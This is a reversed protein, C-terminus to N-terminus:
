VANITTQDWFVDKYVSYKYDQLRLIKESDVIIKNTGTYSKYITSPDVGYYSTSSRILVGRWLIPNQRTWTWYDWELDLPPIRKVNFWPRTVVQQVEQLNTSKYYSITNFTIPGNVRISGVIGNFDLLSPFAIGLFGWEKITLVPEKVLKGNWYFSIGDELQGTIANIAYIKARKGTPHNAVMFFKIHTDNAEIEFIETPAYPFFDQDFRVATQMALVKYDTSMNENIPISLGRTILPDYTGKLEIGSYRTLYLYPSSGKYITFPNTGKYDFYDAVKRYPYISTGFRTGIPNPSSDNFAQSAYELNKISVKNKLIGRVNFELHTVLALNTADATSPPYIIMNNVVEYKTNMWGTGPEIVGEKPPLERSTFYGDVANAGTEIYQFTIYSRVLSNSTDYKYNKSVKNKLDDYDLYGTFLQNDLSTYTRQVPNAYESQLEEYTWSNQQEEELFASPSPYNINFQIFDLDYYQDGRTDTVYQSFYTLPVYDEWYSNVNIDLGYVSFDLSPVLTYSAFHSNLKFTLYTTVDGGDLYYDWFNYFGSPIAPDNKILEGVTNYEYGETGFYSNGGDYGVLGNYASFINEFDRLTGIENFLDAINKHNEENCFGISYINGRFTNVLEKTGGVYMKLSNFNDLFSSVKGGFYQAFKDIELGVTVQEGVQIDYLTHITEEDGNYKLNYKIEDNEVIISFYNTTNESEVHFLTQPNQSFSKVKFVGYFSKLREKLLNLDNFFMYGNVNSWTPNPNFTFFLDDEQQVLSNDSYLLDTTLTSLTIQPLSYDPTSLVNNTISLNKVVGQQWKGIDPYSYNNTYDAFPYDIYISSGSYAQNIGEPFEVGQGYVFRRKAVLSPVDYTYIAVCDIEIPSVDEYSYFGIWDTDKGNVIKTPLLLSSPNYSLSIAEEGNVLLTAGTEKLKIHLLMPRTWEGVYYSGYYSDIKLTLFPGNVYLGDTSSIPGVIRKSGISDSNVRIWMELSYDNYQGEKNLFGLGPIILSPRSEGPSLTTVNYAGYVLPIGSNKALLKNKYVLYYGSNEQLGYAKAEVCDFDTYDGTITSPVSLTEIGLSTSNFEESWQGISVGNVLFHYDDTTDSGNIYEIKILARITTNDSPIDFTESVFLWSDPVSAQYYKVNQINEGSSTDYYEYGIYLGSVYQSLSNIYAGVSFTGLEKNLTTLNFLDSSRCSILGFEGTPVDGIIKTVSSTPFPEDYVSLFPEVTGGSPYWNSVNRQSESILSIYDVQDDLAWLAAPHEAFVKEAYLNSPNSM